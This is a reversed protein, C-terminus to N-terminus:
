ESACELRLRGIREVLAAFLQRLVALEALQFIMYRSHTVVKAGIKRAFCSDRTKGAIDVKKETEDRNSEGEEGARDLM